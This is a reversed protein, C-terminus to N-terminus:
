VKAQAHTAANEGYLDKLMLEVESPSLEGTEDTDYMDFAFIILSSHSLTCYNWLAVVFERFDIQGSQDEDFLTFVRDCFKTSEKSDLYGFLEKTSVLGSEDVDLTCFVEYLRRIDRPNLQFAEFLPRFQALQPERFYINSCLLNGM